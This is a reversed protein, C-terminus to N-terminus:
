LPGLPIKDDPDDIFFYLVAGKRSGKHLGLYTMVEPSGGLHKGTWAAPGADAIDCVIAQGTKPNVVLMKRYKFWKSYEATNQLYGPADFTQVAIYWKEREIDKDTLNSKSDSFYRWAGLGPAMGSSYFFKNQSVNSELHGLMTDGPFRALHQEAGIYGYSRNLRKGELEASVNIMFKDSLFQGLKIEEDHNLPRMKQPLLSSLESAFDPTMNKKIDSQEAQFIGPKVFNPIASLTSPLTNSLMLAGVAGSAIKEKAPIKEGFWELAERHKEWLRKKAEDHRRLWRKKLLVYHLSKNNKKNKGKPM